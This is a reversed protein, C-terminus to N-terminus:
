LKFRLLAAIGGLAKLRKGPEFETSFVVINGGMREVGRLLEEIRERSEDAMLMEDCVLLREIAGYQMAKRVEDEGYVALGGEDRSIEAMLLELLKVERALREVARLRAVAGRKLVELFGSIGTSSAQEIVARKHLEPVKERMFEHFDNKIFGPGAVILADCANSYYAQQLQNLVETFFQKMNSDIGNGKGSSYRISFLEDVGYQRVIGAVAEGAEITLIIIPARNSAREAERLRDLQHERWNSKIISLEVDPEINFTHYSGVEPGVEIVGKVRLRHSFRHFEVGEVRIGMRVRKKETKDPRIKDTAEELRRYTFSYVLDGPEIVYKLHWLDDTSEPIVSIEGPKQGKDRRKLRKRLIKM